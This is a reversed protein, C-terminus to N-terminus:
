KRNKLYFNLMEVLAPIRIPKAIYDTCGSSLIENRDHIMAYATQAIIIIDPNFQRIQRTAELGGIGPMHIDMLILDTEPHKQLLTIANEGNEARIVRAGYRKLVTELLLFNSEIDEAVLITKGSWDIESQSLPTGQMLNGKRAKRV